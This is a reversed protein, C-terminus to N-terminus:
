WATTLWAIFIGFRLLQRDFFCSCQLWCYWRAPWVNIRNFHGNSQFNSFINKKNKFEFSAKVLKYRYNTPFIEVAAASIINGKNKWFFFLLPINEKIKMWFVCFNIFNGAMGNCLLVIFAPISAKPVDSLACVIGGAGCATLIM